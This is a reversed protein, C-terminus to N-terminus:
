RAARGPHRALSTDDQERQLAALEAATDAAQIREQLREVTRRARAASGLEALSASLRGSAFEVRHAAAALGAALNQQRAAAAQFEGVTAQGPPALEGVRAQQGALAASADALERRAQAAQQARLDERAQRARIMVPLWRPASM